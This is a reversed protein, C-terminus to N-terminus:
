QGRRLQLWRLYRAELGTVGTTAPKKPVAGLRCLALRVWQRELSILMASSRARASVTGFQTPGEICYEGCRPSERKLGSDCVRLRTAGSRFCDAGAAIITAVGADRTLPLVCRRGRIADEKEALAAWVCGIVYSACNWSVPGSM